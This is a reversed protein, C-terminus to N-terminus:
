GRNKILVIGRINTILVQVDNFMIQKSAIKEGSSAFFMSIAM